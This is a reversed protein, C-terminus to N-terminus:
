GFIGTCEPRFVRGILRGNEDFSLLFMPTCGVLPASVDPFKSQILTDAPGHAFSFLEHSDAVHRFTIVPMNRSKLTAKAANVDMGVPFLTELDHEDQVYAQRMIRRTRYSAITYAAIPSLMVAVALITYILVKRM